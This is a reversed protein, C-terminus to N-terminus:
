PRLHARIESERPDTSELSYKGELKSLPSNESRLLDASLLNVAGKNEVSSDCYGRCSAFLRSFWRLSIDVFSVYM